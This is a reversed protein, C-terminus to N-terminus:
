GRGRPSPGPTLTGEVLKREVVEVLDAVAVIAAEDDEDLCIRFHDEVETALTLLRLSDLQLDEVLRTGPTLEGKFDLKDRAIAALGSLVDARDV